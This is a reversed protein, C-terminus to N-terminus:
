DLDVNPSSAPPTGLIESALPWHGLGPAFRLGPVTPNLFGKHTIRCRAKVCSSEVREVRIEALPNSRSTFMPLASQLRFMTQLSSEEWLYAWPIGSGPVIQSGRQATLPDRCLRTQQHQCLANSELYVVQAIEVVWVLRAYTAISESASILLPQHQLFHSIANEEGCIRNLMELASWYVVYLSKQEKGQPRM